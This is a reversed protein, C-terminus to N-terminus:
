LLGQGVKVRSMSKMKFGLEIPAEFLLVITSGFKFHGFEEGKSVEVPTEFVKEECQSKKRAMTNTNLDPDMNVHISGVATAGVAVFAFFGHQWRGLYAVRENTHFLGPMKRVIAPAVSHLSGPFHRRKHVVWSAPSHFRHYDAPSLYIVCEFLATAPSTQLFPSISELKNDSQNPVDKTKTYNSMDGTEDIIVDIEKTKPENGLNSKEKTDLDIYKLPEITDLPGIFTKLHYKIGKVQQLYPGDFIGAYTMKGDAPSVVDSISCVPRVSPKLKRTFFEGVTKYELLSSHEAEERNCGNVRAYLWVTAYSLPFPLQTNNMVGWLASYANFPLHRYISIFLDFLVMKGKM